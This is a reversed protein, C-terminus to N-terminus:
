AARRLRQKEHETLHEMNLNRVVELWNGHIEVAVTRVMRLCGDANPFNRVVLIRRKIEQNLLELMNTSNMHKHHALPLRYYTLTEEINEELWACLKVYKGQWKALSAALNRRVGAPDRRDYLWHLKQLCDDDVRRPVFDLANRLFRVYCRQGAAEPLM